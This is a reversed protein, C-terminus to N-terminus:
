HPAGTELDRDNDDANNDDYHMIITIMLMFMIM